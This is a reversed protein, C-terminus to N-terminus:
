VGPVVTKQLRKPIEDDMINRGPTFRSVGDHEKKVLIFTGMRTQSGKSAGGRYHWFKPVIAWHDPLM